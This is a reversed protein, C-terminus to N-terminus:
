MRDNENEKGLLFDCEGYIEEMVCNRVIAEAFLKLADSHSLSYKTELEKIVWNMADKYNIGIEGNIKM